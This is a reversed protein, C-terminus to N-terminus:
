HAKTRVIIFPKVMVYLAYLQTEYQVYQLPINLNMYTNTFGKM